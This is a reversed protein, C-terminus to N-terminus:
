FGALAAGHSCIIKPRSVLRTYLAFGAPFRGGTPLVADGRKKVNAHNSRMVRPIIRLTDSSTPPAPM